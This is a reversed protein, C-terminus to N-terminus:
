FYFSMTPPFLEYKEGFKIPLLEAANIFLLLYRLKSLWKFLLKPKLQIFLHRLCDKEWSQPGASSCM